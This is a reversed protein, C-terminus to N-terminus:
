HLRQQTKSVESAEANLNHCQEEDRMNINQIPSYPGCPPSLWLVRPKVIRAFEKARTKGTLTTMDMKNQIGVRFAIGGRKNITETLTSTAKCCVEMLDCQTRRFAAFCEEVAAASEALQVSLTEKIEDTIPCTCACLHDHHDFSVLADQDHYEFNALADNELDPMTDRM